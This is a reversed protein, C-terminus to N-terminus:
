VRALWWAPLVYDMVEFQVIWQPDVAFSPEDRERYGFVYPGKGSTPAAAAVAQALSPREGENVLHATKMWAARPRDHLEALLLQHQLEDCAEWLWDSIGDWSFKSPHSAMFVVLTEPKWVPLGHVDDLPIQPDWRCM